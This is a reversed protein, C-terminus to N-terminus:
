NGHTIKIIQQLEEEMAKIWHDDKNEEHARKPEVQSILCLEENIISRTM